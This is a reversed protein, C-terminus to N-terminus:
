YIGTVKCELKLKSVNYLYELYTDFINYWKVQIDFRGKTDKGTLCRFKPQICMLSIHPCTMFYNIYFNMLDYVEFKSMYIFDDITGDILYDVGVGIIFRDVCARVFDVSCFARNILEIKDKMVVKCESASKRVLGTGDMSGDGFHYYKYFDILDQAIGNSSMFECFDSLSESHLSNRCGNKLSISYIKRNLVIYIDAKRGLKGIYCKIFSDAYVGCDLSEIFLRMNFDLDCVRKGDLANVFMEENKYGIIFRM